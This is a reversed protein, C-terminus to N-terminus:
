SDAARGVSSPHSLDREITCYPQEALHGYRMMLLLRLRDEYSLEQGGSNSRDCTPHQSYLYGLPEATFQHM